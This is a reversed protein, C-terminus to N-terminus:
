SRCKFKANSTIPSWQAVCDPMFEEEEPRPIFMEKRHLETVERMPPLRNVQPRRKLKEKVLRIHHLQSTSVTPPDQKRNEAKTEWSPYTIEM